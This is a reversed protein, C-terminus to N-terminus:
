GPRRSSLLERVAAKAGPDHHWVDAFHDGPLEILRCGHRFQEALRRAHEIPVLRDHTGHLLLVECGVDRAWREADLRIRCAWRILRPPVRPLYLAVIESLRAFGSHLVLARPCAVNAAQWVAVASGFSRGFIVVAAPEYGRECIFRWAARAAEQCGRVSARGTSAGFGPYDVLCVTAGLRHLALLSSAEYSM